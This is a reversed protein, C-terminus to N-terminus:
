GGEDSGASKPAAPSRLRAASRVYWALAGPGSLPRVLGLTQAAREASAFRAKYPEDGYLLDFEEAGEEVAEQLARALLVFGVSADDWLPDRGSQYFLYARGFRWGYFAAVAEGDVELLWLRLWGRELSAEAFARHFAQARPSSLPSTDGPWRKLHLDLLTEFDRSFSSRDETRRLSVSRDRELARRRRGLQGRFNRSRSALYADWSGEAARLDTYPLAGTELCQLRSSRPIPAALAEPWSVGTPVRELRLMNWASRERALAHGCASAVAVEDSEACAPHFRDGIGAAAFALRRRWGARERVLPLVGVLDAGRYVALVFPEESGDGADLWASFWDPTVFPNSRTAAFLRWPEALEALAVPERVIEVRLDSSM